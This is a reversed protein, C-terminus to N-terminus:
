AKASTRKTRVRPAKGLPVTRSLWPFRGRSYSDENRLKVSKKTIIYCPIATRKWPREGETVKGAVAVNICRAPPLGPLLVLFGNVLRALGDWLQQGEKRLWGSPKENGEQGNVSARIRHHTDLKRKGKSKTYTTRNKHFKGM